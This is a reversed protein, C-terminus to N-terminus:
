ASQESTDTAAQLAAVDHLTHVPQVIPTILVLMKVVLSNSSVAVTKTAIDAKANGWSM